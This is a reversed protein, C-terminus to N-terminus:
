FDTKSGKMINDLKWMPQLNTFNNLKYIDEINKAESLPIKHDIEWEGYNKWSMNVDFLSELHKKLEETQCGVFDITKNTKLIKKVKLYGNIRSRLNQKLRFLVDVQRRNKNYKKAIELIKESNESKYKKHNKTYDDKNEFYHEKMRQNHVQKNEQYYKKTYESCCKKCKSKYGKGKRYFDELSKEIHCSTCTKM